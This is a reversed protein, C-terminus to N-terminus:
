KGRVTKIYIKSSNGTATYGREHTVYYCYMLNTNIFEVTPAINLFQIHRTRTCKCMGLSMDTCWNTWWTLANKKGCLLSGLYIHTKCVYFDFEFLCEAMVFRGHAYPYAVIWQFVRKLARVRTFEKWLFMGLIRVPRAWSLITTKLVRIRVSFSSFIKFTSLLLPTPTNMKNKKQM